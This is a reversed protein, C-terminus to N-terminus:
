LLLDGKQITRDLFPQGPWSAEIMGSDDQLVASFVRLGKRTPLIGKSIVRGLITADMGPALARIPQVTSADEYRHPIHRLLDGAIRIGLRAFHQARVPGVGKLYTIETDLTLAPRRTDLRAM